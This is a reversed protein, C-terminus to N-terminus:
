FDFDIHRRRVHINNLLGVMIMCAVIHSGGYSLFPLSMGKVPMLGITMGINVVVHTMLIGAIGAAVLRGFTERANEAISIARYIVLGLLGLALCAGVFGLEEAIATFIFDSEQDPIFSLQTQTGRMYGQGFLHGAGVAILSQRVQWGGGQPDADPKAFAMLRAKQHPKILDTAWATAFATTLFAVVVLLHSVRAGAVYALVLWAGVLVVPTGMDPQVLALVMSPLLLFFSGITTALSNAAPRPRSWYAAILIVAAIKALEAPQLHFPGLPIWRQAGRVEGGVLLVLVMLALSIGYVPWALPQLRVYDFLSMLALAIIGIGVYILQFVYRRAAAGPKGHTCSYIM